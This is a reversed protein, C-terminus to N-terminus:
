SLLDEMDSGSMLCFCLNVLVSVLLLQIQREQIRSVNGGEKGSSPSSSPSANGAKPNPKLLHESIALFNGLKPPGPHLGGGGGGISICLEPSEM